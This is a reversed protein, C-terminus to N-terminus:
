LLPILAITLLTLASMLAFCLTIKGGAVMYRGKLAHHYRGKYAMLAPMLLLLIVCFVGAFSIAHLYADPYLLVILLPPLFTLAFTLGGQMGKKKLKLGDAIFDFLGLSIALFATLMCIASFARFFDTIYLSHTATNLSKTLATTTHGSLTIHLLTSTPLVGMIAANWALYCILPIFSGFLIIRRLKPIDDDFYDRLSPVISAFSFSTILIMMASTIYKAHGTMLFPLSVHPAICYVLLFYIGLKLFMLGRNMYDVLRIGMYVITGLVLVFLTTTLWSPLSIHALILLGQLVDSGGSIYASLLTYLLSLYCIWAILKGFPGLTKGAMSVINAGKPLYLNVELLLLAGVTMIFWSLLLFFSAEFFGVQAIALPLALMGGGISTGIILLIGGILRSDLAKIM